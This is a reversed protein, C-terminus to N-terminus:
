HKPLTLFFFTLHDPFTSNCFLPGSGSGLVPSKESVWIFQRLLCTSVFGSVKRPLPPSCCHPFGPSTSQWAAWRRLNITIGHTEQNDRALRESEPDKGTACADRLWSANWHSPNQSTPLICPSTDEREKQGKRVGEPQHYSTLEM